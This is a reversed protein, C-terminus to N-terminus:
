GRESWSGGSGNRQRKHSELVLGFAFQHLLSLCREGYGIEWIPIGLITGIGNTSGYRKAIGEFARLSDAEYSLTRRTYACIHTELQAIRSFIDSLEEDDFGWITEPTSFSAESSGRFISSRVFNEMKQGSEDHLIALPLDLSEQVAMGRCEFYVQWDTFVLRRASLVGEQYTWGRSSWVSEGIVLRPDPLSSVLQIDHNLVVHPQSRSPRWTSGAGPLGHRADSGAAAVITLDACRYIWEMNAILYHKEQANTQDICLRDVWLYKLGIGLTVAVADLVVQPWPEPEGTGWVYSLAVYPDEFPRIELCPPSAMCNIVRFNQLHGANGKQAMCRDKHHTKCFSLWHLVISMDVLDKLLRPRLISNSAANIERPIIPHITGSLRCGEVLWWPDYEDPGMSEVDPVVALFFYGSIVSWAQRNRMRGRNLFHLFSGSLAILRHNEYQDPEIRMRRFFSCLPCESDRSLRNSFGCVRFSRPPYDEKYAEFFAYAAALSTVLELDSCKECSKADMSAEHAGNM